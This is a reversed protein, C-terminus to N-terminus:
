INKEVICINTFFFEQEESFRVREGNACQVGIGYKGIVSNVPIIVEARM